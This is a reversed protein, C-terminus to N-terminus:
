PPTVSAPGSLTVAPFSSQAAVNAWSEVQGIAVFLVPFCLVAGIVATAMVIPSARQFAVTPPAMWMVRIINLYYAAAVVTAVAAIVVLWVLGANWAASFAFWKGWFGAVPPIGAISFMLVTMAAAMWPKRQAVGALDDITEVMGDERRMALLLAFIGITTPLYITMYILAAAAGAQGGASIALIAFGMNAISSYAMLRKLNTQALAITTGIVLSMAAIVATVQQWQPTLAAFPDYLLRALLAVAALKPAAAFLATVPTPAGEYVDPTWMHFPAAALKFALGCIMFVLGFVLGVNVGGGSQAAMAIADFQVSGAFGYVLSAGYLLLGSSLAGLVFYKLGAESSRNEDRRWAAMVYAALSQLEVGMYLTILDNASAMIFMGLVALTTLIAFEYRRDDERTFFDQGLMLTFAASFAIVAKAYAAFADIQLADFFVLTPAAQADILAFGGAVFLALAGLSGIVGTARNGFIAGLLTAALAFGALTLEPRIYGLDRVLLATMEPTTLEAPNM